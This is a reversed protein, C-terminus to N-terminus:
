STECKRGEALNLDEQTSTIPAGACGRRHVTCPTQVWLNQHLMSLKHSPAEKVLQPLHCPSQFTPGASAAPSLSRTFRQPATPPKALTKTGSDDERHLKGAQKVQSM